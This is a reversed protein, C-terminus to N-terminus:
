SQTQNGSGADTAVSPVQGGATWSQHFTVYGLACQAMCRPAMAVDWVFPHISTAWQTSPVQLHASSGRPDPFM